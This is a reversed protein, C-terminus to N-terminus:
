VSFRIVIIILHEPLDKSQTQLHGERTMEKIYFVCRLHLKQYKYKNKSGFYQIVLEFFLSLLM